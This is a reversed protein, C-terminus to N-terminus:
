CNRLYTFVYEPLQIKTKTEKISLTAPKKPWIPGNWSMLAIGGM